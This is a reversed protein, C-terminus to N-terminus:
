GPTLLSFPSVIYNKKNTKNKGKGKEWEEGKGKAGKDCLANTGEKRSAAVKSGKTYCTL